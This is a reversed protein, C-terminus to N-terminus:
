ILINFYIFLNVINLLSSALSSKRRERTDPRREKPSSRTSWERVTAPRSDLRLPLWRLRKIAPTRALGRDQYNPSEIKKHLSFIRFIRLFVKPALCSGVVFEVWMHCRAPISDLGCQHSLLARVVTDGRSRVGFRNGQSM